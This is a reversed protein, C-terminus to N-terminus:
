QALPVTDNMITVHHGELPRLVCISDLFTIEAKSTRGQNVFHVEHSGSHSLPLAIMATAPGEANLAFDGPLYIGTFVIEPTGEHMTQDYAIRNNFNSFNNDTRVALPIDEAPKLVNLSDPFFRYFSVTVDYNFDSDESDACSFLLLFVCLLSVSCSLDKM